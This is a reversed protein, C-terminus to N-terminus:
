ESAGQRLSAQTAPAASAKAFDAAPELTANLEVPLAPQELVTLVKLADEGYFSRKTIALM